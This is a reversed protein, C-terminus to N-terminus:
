PASLIPNGFINVFVVEFRVLKASKFNNAGVTAVNWRRGKKKGESSGGAGDGKM